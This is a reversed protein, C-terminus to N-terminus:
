PEEDLFWDLSRNFTEQAESNKMFYLPFGFWQINGQVPNPDPDHWRLANLRKHYTSGRGEIETGYARYVYLSDIDGRFTPDSEAFIPDRIADCHTVGKQFPWRVKNIDLTMSDYVAPRGPYPAVGWMLDNIGSGMPNIINTTQLKLMDWAFTGPYLAEDTIPYQISVTQGASELCPPVTMKGDLWLQGGAGLYSRLLPKQTAAKFLAPEGSYGSGLNDWIILRYQGMVSLPPPIPVLPDPQESPVSYTFRPNAAAYNQFRQVWFADQQADTPFQRDFSDDVFLVDKDFSFEIVNMIITGLTITGNIDRVRIYFVHIGPRSFSVPPNIRLDGWGSWGSEPGERELDPVDVGWSYSEIEGGYAEVDAQWQFRLVRGTPVEVEAPAGIATFEFCGLSPECVTLVPYGGLALAQFKFFNRAPSIFPEIGGAVDVARVAFIYQGGLSVRFAKSLTDASQYTWKRDGRTFLLSPAAIVLPVSPDLTDVRLLRYLYGTPLKSAEPSDPDQGSWKVTLTTGMNLIESSIDPRDIKSAPTITQATYGIGEARSYLGDNDRSRVYIRHAGSYQAIAKFLGGDNVSDADPTTFAFSRNFERTEIWRFVAPEGGDMKTVVLTDQGRDPGLVRRVTIGPANEPAEIEAETFAAPPDLAYEFHDIIGDEDWGSWYIRATYSDESGSIPGGTIQVFPRLSAIPRGTEHGCGAAAGALALFLVLRRKM